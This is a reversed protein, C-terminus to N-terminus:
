VKEWVYISKRLAEKGHRGMQQSSNGKSQPLILINCVKFGLGEAIKSLIMDVSISAGAYRVNDNVMILVGGRSLLRYCESIVCAMEYFYGKVMRPIGNNNLEKLNKKDELFGVIEQLLPLNDCASIAPHCNLDRGGLDKERNEVTCTLMLQRLKALEVDSIGLIAHELAYIRTYDYRNCYPPSTIIADYNKNRLGPLVDLCSGSFLKVRDADPKHSVEFLGTPKDLSYIDNILEDIKAAIAEDVQLIRRKSFSSGNGARGSRCDWRLCQGDKSTYSVDELVCLLVFLLIRRAFLSEDELAGLYRGIAERAGIPYAERTIRLTNIPRITRSIVWPKKTKWRKLIDRTESSKSGICSKRAEVIWKGLPLLEIGHAEFGMSSAAFLATGAGSFPDLIRRTKVTVGSLFRSVLAASFAEKYRYWRYFPSRKDSQFSVIQRSLSDDTKTVPSFYSLLEQDLREIERLRGELLCKSERKSTLTRYPQSM